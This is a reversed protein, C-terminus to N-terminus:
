EKPPSKLATLEERSPIPGAEWHINEFCGPMGRGRGVGPAIEPPLVELDIDRALVDLYDDQTTVILMDRIHPEFFHKVM